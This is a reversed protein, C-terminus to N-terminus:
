RNDSERECAAKLDVGSLRINFGLRNRFPFNIQLCPWRRRTGPLQYLNQLNNVLSPFMAGITLM